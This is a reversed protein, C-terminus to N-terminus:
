KDENSDGTNIIDCNKTLIYKKEFGPIKNAEQLFEINNLLSINMWRFANIDYKIVLLGVKPNKRVSPGCNRIYLPDKVLIPWMFDIDDKLKEGVQDILFYNKGIIKTVLEKNNKLEISAYKLIDIIRKSAKLLYEADSITNKSRIEHIRKDAGESFSHLKENIEYIYDMEESNLKIGKTTKQNLRTIRRNDDIAKLYRKKDSDSLDFSDLKKKVVGTLCPELNQSSDLVGRIEKIKEGEFRIAIRPVTPNDNVDNTYYVYFDGGKYRGGGCIQNMCEDSNKTCWFTNQYVISNWLKYADEKSGKNYKIWIGNTTNNKNNKYEKLLMYYLTNFGNSKITEELTKDGLTGCAFGKIYHILKDVATTNFEIFPSITKSSRKMFLDRSESYTGVGIMGQFVYYKIWYDEKCSSHLYDLWPRLSEKQAEIIKDKEEDNFKNNINEKKIVYRRFFCNYLLEKKGSNIARKSINELREFYNKINEFKNNNKYFRNSHKVEKSNYLNKYYKEIFFIGDM